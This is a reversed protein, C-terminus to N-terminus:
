TARVGDGEIVRGMAPIVAAGEAEDDEEEGGGSDVREGRGEAEGDGDKGRSDADGVGVEGPPPRDNKGRGDGARRVTGDDAAPRSYTLVSWSLAGEGMSSAGDWRACDRLAGGEGVTAGEAAAVGGADEEALGAEEEGEPTHRQLM